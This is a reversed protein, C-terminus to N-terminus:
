LPRFGPSGGALSALIGLALASGSSAGVHGLEDLACLARAPSGKAVAGILEHAPEICEGRASWRLFERAVDSTDVQTIVGIRSGLAGPRRHSDVLLAGALVDDGSPTLGPGLGGLLRAMSSLDRSRALEGALALTTHALGTRRARVQDLTSEALATATHEDLARAAVIPPRWVHADTWTVDERPLRLFRRSLEVPEGPALRPLPDVRLHMPGRPASCSCLAVLRDPFKLYAAREFVAVTM